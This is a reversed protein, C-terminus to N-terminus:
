SKIKDVSLTKLEALKKLSYDDVEQVYENGPVCLFESDDYNETVKPIMFKNCDCSVLIGNEKLFTSALM